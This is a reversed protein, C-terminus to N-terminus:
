LHLEIWKLLSRSRLIEGFVLRFYLLLREVSKTKSSSPCTGQLVLCWSWVWDTWPPINRFSWGIRRRFLVEGPPCKWFSSPRCIVHLSYILILSIVSSRPESLLMGRFISWWPHSMEPGWSSIVRRPQSGEFVHHLASLCYLQIVRFESMIGINIV